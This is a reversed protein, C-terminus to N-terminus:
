PIELAAMEEELFVLARMLVGEVTSPVTAMKRASPSSRPRAMTWSLYRQRERAVTGVVDLVLGLGLRRPKADMGM